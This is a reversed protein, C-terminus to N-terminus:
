EILVRKLWASIDELEEGCVSHAMPYQHWDVDYGLKILRDRTATGLPLPVINDMTGHGLFIPMDPARVPGIDRGQSAVPM